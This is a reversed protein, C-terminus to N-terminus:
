HNDITKLCMDLQTYATIGKLYDPIVKTLPHPQYVLIQKDLKQFYEVERQTCPSLISNDTLVFLMRKSQEMRLNLANWTDDNQNARQLMERDNVWDIYVTLNRSNLAGKLRLLETVDLSSHSLFVDFSQYILQQHSYILELLATPNKKINVPNIQSQKQKGKRKRALWPHEGLRQLSYFAMKRLDDNKENANVKYLFTITEECKFQSVELLILYRANIDL